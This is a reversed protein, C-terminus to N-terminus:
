ILAIRLQEAYGKRKRRLNCLKHTLRLNAATHDGGQSLPVIHDLHIQDPPVPQRCIQCIGDDREIIAQRSVREVKPAHKVRARRISNRAYVKEPNAKQWRLARELARGPNAANWRRVRAVIKERDRQYEARKRARVREPKDAIYKRDKQRATEPDRWYAAKKRAKVAEPDRWYRKTQRQSRCAKCQSRYRDTFGTQLSFAGLPKLEGCRSCHKTGDSVDALRARM